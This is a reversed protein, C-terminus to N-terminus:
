KSLGSLVAASVHSPRQAVTRPPLALKWIGVSYVRPIAKIRLAGTFFPGPSAKLAPVLTESDFGRGAGPVMVERSISWQQAPVVADEEVNRIRTTRRVM